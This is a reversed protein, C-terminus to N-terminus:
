ELLPLECGSKTALTELSQEGGLRTGDGLEWTPYGEIGADQCTQNMTRAATSCEVYDVQDFASGFLEKQNECHPCWWAGYMTVGNETLCQAFASYPSLASEETSDKVAFILLGVVVIVAAGYLYYSSQKGHKM